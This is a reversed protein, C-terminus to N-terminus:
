AGAFFSMMVFRVVVSLFLVSVVGLGALTKRVAQQHQQLMDTPFTRRDAQVTQLLTAFSSKQTSPQEAEGQRPETMVTLTSRAANPYDLCDICLTAVDAYQIAAVKLDAGDDGLVLSYNDDKPGEESM